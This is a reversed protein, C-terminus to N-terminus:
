ENVNYKKEKQQRKIHKMYSKFSTKSFLFPNQRYKFLLMVLSMFKKFGFEKSRYLQFLPSIQYKRLGHEKLFKNERLVVCFRSRVVEYSSTRTLSGKSVTVIYVVESIARIEHAFYGVKLSFFSDNAAPVEDFEINNSIVLNRKVMKAYPPEYGLRLKLDEVNGNIYDDVLNSFIEARDAYQNTDIYRGEAKFYIIDAGSTVYKHFIDFANETFYDDADAFLLWEGHANKLGVNRAAGAGGTPSSYFLNFSRTSVVDSKALQVPSNDIVIVEIDDSAPISSLLKELLNISNRHPIIISFTM